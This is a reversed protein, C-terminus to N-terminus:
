VGMFCLLPVCLFAVRLALGCRLVCPVLADVRSLHQRASGGGLPSPPRVEWSKSLRTLRSMCSSAPRRSATSLILSSGPCWCCSPPGLTALSRKNGAPIVVPTFPPYRHVLCIRPFKTSLPSAVTDSLSTLSPVAYMTSFGYSPELLYEFSEMAQGWNIYINSTLVRVLWENSWETWQNVKAAVEPSSQELNVGQLRAITEIIRVSDNVQVGNIVCVPVKRYVSFKLQPKRLPEVQAAFARLSPLPVLLASDISACLDNSLPLDFIHAGPYAQASTAPQKTVPGTNSTM